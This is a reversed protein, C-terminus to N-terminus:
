QLSVLSRYLEVVHRASTEAGFREFVTSRGAESLQRRFEERAVANECALSLEAPSNSGVLIGTVGDTIVEPIGGVKRAVVPIGLALAELLVMPLGEHDSSIVLLDLARLVDFIDDRHGLFHVRKEIGLERSLTQLKASERGEGAIVFQSRANRGAIEQAARLFIDLRKIPELRCATGFVVAEAPIGLQQRAEAVSLASRAQELDMTNLITVVKGSGLDCGLKQSMETSVAIVRGASWRALLHDVSQILRQKLDKLGRQPEILGHRTRIVVPIHLRWSLLTALMNEKYRHSHVVHIRKSKLFRTVQSLIEMFGFQREPVVLCELGLSQIEQVLRGPNLVITCVAVRKDRTLYKLLTAVQVEAGAWLDGSVIHCVGIPPISPVATSHEPPRREPM